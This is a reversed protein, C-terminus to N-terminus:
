DRADSTGRDTRNKSGYKNFIDIKLLVVVACGPTRIVIRAGPNQEIDGAGDRKWRPSQGSLVAYYRPIEQWGARRAGSLMYVTYVSEYSTVPGHPGGGPQARAHCAPRGKLLRRGNDTIYGVVSIPQLNTVLM